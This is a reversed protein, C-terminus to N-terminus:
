IWKVEHWTNLTFPPVLGGGACMKRRLEKHYCSHLRENNGSPISHLWDCRTGPISGRESGSHQYGRSQGVLSTFNLTQSLLVPGVKEGQQLVGLPHFYYSPVSNVLLKDEFVEILNRTYWLKCVRLCCTRYVQMITCHSTREKWANPKIDLTAKCASFISWWGSHNLTYLLTYFSNMIM